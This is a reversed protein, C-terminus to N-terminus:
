ISLKAVLSRTRLATRAIRPPTEAIDRPTPAAGAPAASLVEAAAGELAGSSSTITVPRRAESCFLRSTLFFESPMTSAIEASSMPLNGSAFRAVAMSLIGPTVTLRAATLRVPVPPTEVVPSAECIVTRPKPGCNLVVKNSPRWTGVDIPLLLRPKLKPETPESKTPWSSTIFVGSEVSDLPAIPAVILM